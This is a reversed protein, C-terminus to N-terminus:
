GPKRIPLMKRLYNVNESIELLIATPFRWRGQVAKGGKFLHCSSYIMDVTLYHFQEQLIPAHGTCFDRPANAAYRIARNPIPNISEKALPDNV